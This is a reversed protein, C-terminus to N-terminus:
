VAEPPPDHTDITIDMKLFHVGFISGRKLYTNVPSEEKTLRIEVKKDKSDEVEQNEKESSDSETEMDLWSFAQSESVAMSEVVPQLVISSFVLGFILVRFGLAIIYSLQKM